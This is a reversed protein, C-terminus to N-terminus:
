ANNKGEIRWARYHGSLLTVKAYKVLIRGARVARPGSECYVLLNKEGLARAADEDIDGVPVNIAGPLHGEAYESASRVDLPTFEGLRDKADRVSIEPFEDNAGCTHVSLPPSVQGGQRRRLPIKTFEANLADVMLVSGALTKGVGTLVKIAEMAMVTGAQGVLAGIVGAEGCSPVTGEPPAAPFLDRLTPTDDGNLFVSVQAYFTLVSGWVLPKQLNKCTDAVLYRTPFNDAGDIVLDASGVLAVANAANIRGEIPLIKVDGGSLHDLRDKASAVKARGVDPMGHVIQRHLNSPTVVDDDIVSITGVGAATLYELVPSGLGGAGIVLVHARALKNQAAEGFNPLM